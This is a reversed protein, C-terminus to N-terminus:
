HSGFIDSVNLRSELEDVSIYRRSSYIKSQSPFQIGTPDVITDNEDVCWFHERPGWYLDMYDGYVIRLEPFAKKMKICQYHCNGYADQKDMFYAQYKPDFEGLRSIPQPPYPDIQLEWCKQFHDFNLENEVYGCILCRDPGAKVGYAGSGWGVDVKEGEEFGEDNNCIPCNSPPLISM